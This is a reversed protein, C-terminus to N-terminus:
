PRRLIASAVWVIGSIFGLIVAVLRIEGDLLSELAVLAGRENLMAEAIKSHDADTMKDADPMARILRRLRSDKLRRAWKRSLLGIALLIVATISSAKAALVLSIRTLFITAALLIFLVSVTYGFKSRDTTPDNAGMWCAPAIFLLIAIALASLSMERWVWWILVSALLLAFLGARRQHGAWPRLMPSVYNRGGISPPGQTRM